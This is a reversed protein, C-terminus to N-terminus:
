ILGMARGGRGLTQSAPDRRVGFGVSCKLKWTRKWEERVSLTGGSGGPLGKQDKHESYVGLKQKTEVKKEM